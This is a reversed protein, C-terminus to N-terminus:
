APQGLARTHAVALLGRMRALEADLIRRGCDTLAYAIRIRGTDDATAPVEEARTIWGLELLRKLVGYLTGTSLNLRSESLHHVEKM